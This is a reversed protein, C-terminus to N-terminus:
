LERNYFFMYARSFGDRVQQENMPSMTVNDDAKWMINNFHLVATYHGSHLDEGGHEIYSNLRFGSTCFVDAAYTPIYIKPNPVIQLHRKVLRGDVMQFRGALIVLKEPVSSFGHTSEQCEWAHILQQITVTELLSDYADRINSDLVLIDSDAADLIRVTELGSDQASRAECHFLFQHRIRPCKGFLFRLFEGVDHQRHPDSWNFFKAKWAVNNWFHFTDSAWAGEIVGYLDPDLQDHLAQITCMTWLLCRMTANTYCHFGTNGFKAWRLLEFLRSCDENGPGLAPAERAQLFNRGGGLDFDPVPQEFDALDSQGGSNEPGSGSHVDVNSKSVGGFSSTDCPLSERRIAGEGFDGGGVAHKQGGSSAGKPHNSGGRPDEQEPEVENGCVARWGGHDLGTEQRERGAGTRKRAGGITSSHDGACASLTHSKFSPEAEGSCQDQDRELGQGCHVDFGGPQQPLGHAHFVRVSHRPSKDHNSQRPTPDAHEPARGAAQPGPDPCETGQGSELDKNAM